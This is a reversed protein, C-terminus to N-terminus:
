VWYSVSTYAISWAIVTKVGTTWSHWQKEGSEVNIMMVDTQDLVYRWDSCHLVITYRFTGPSFYVVVIFVRQSAVCFTIAAVFSVLSVWLIAICSCRTASLQVMRLVPQLHGTWFSKSVGEYAMGDKHSKQQLYPGLFHGNWDRLSTKTSNMIGAMCTHIIVSTETCCFKKQFSSAPFERGTKDFRVSHLPTGM